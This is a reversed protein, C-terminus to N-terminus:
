LMKKGSVIVNVDASVIGVSSNARCTYIGADNVAVSQLLLQTTVTVDNVIIESVIGNHSEESKKMWVTDPLPYGVVTCTLVVDEGRFLTILSNISTIVPKATFSFYVVINLSTITVWKFVMGIVFLQITKEASVETMLIENRAVCTYNGRSELTVFMITLNSLVSFNDLIRGNAMDSLERTTYLSSSSRWIVGDPRPNGHAICELTVSENIPIYEELSSAAINVAAVIVFLFTYLGENIVLLILKEKPILCYM